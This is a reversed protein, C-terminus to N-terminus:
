AVADFAELGDPGWAAAELAACVRCADALLLVASWAVAAEGGRTRRTQRAAEEGLRRWWTTEARWVDREDSVDAFM